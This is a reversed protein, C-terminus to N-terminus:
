KGNRSNYSVIYRECIGLSLGIAFYVLVLALIGVCLMMWWAAELLICWYIGVIAAGIASVMKIRNKGSPDVNGEGVARLYKAALYWIIILLVVFPALFTILM